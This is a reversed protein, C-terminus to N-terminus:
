NNVSPPEPSLIHSFISYCGELVQILDESFNHFVHVHIEHCLNASDESIKNKHQKSGNWEHTEESLYKLVRSFYTEKM